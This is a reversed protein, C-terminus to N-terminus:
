FVQLVICPLCSLLEYLSCRIMIESSMSILSGLDVASCEYHEMKLDISTRSVADVVM